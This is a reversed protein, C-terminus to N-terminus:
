PLPEGNLAARLAYIAELVGRANTGCPFEELQALALRAAHHLANVHEQASHEELLLRLTEKHVPVFLVYPPRNARDRLHQLEEATM